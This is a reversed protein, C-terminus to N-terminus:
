AMMAVDLERILLNLAPVDLTRKPGKKMKKLTVGERRYKSARALVIPKPMKLRDAVEQPTQSTQWARIFAEPSVDYQKKAM